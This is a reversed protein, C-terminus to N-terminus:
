TATPTACFCRHGGGVGAGDGREVAQQAEERSWGRRAQPHWGAGGVPAPVAGGGALVHFTLLAATARVARGLGEDPGGVGALDEERWGWCKARDWFYM